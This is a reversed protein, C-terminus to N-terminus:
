RKLMKLDELHGVMCIQSDCTEDHNGCGMEKCSGADAHYLNSLWWCCSFWAWLKAMAVSNNTFSYSFWFCTADFSGITLFEQNKQHISPTHDNRCSAIDLIEVFVHVFDYGFCAADKSPQRWNQCINKPLKLM